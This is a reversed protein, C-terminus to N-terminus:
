EDAYFFYSTSYGFTGLEKYNILKPYLEEVKKFIMKRAESDTVSVVLREVNEDSEDRSM